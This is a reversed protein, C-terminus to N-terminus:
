PEEHWGVEQPHLVHHRPAPGPGGRCGQVQRFGKKRERETKQSLSLNTLTYDKIFITEDTLSLFVM